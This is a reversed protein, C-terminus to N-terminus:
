NNAKLWFVAQELATVAKAKDNGQLYMDAMNRYDKYMNHLAPYPVWNIKAQYAEAALHYMEVPIYTKGTYKEVTFTIAEAAPREYTPNVLLAKGYEMAKPMNTKVLAAMTRYAILPAYKLGPEVKVISDIALLMSDPKGTFDLHLFDDDYRHLYETLKYDMQELHMNYVYMDRAAQVNWTNNIVKPLVTDIEYPEGLWALKGEANIIFSKPIGHEAAGSARFWSNEVYGNDDAAATFDLKTGLSDVFAQVRKLSTTTDELIDMGIFTVTDKYQKALLSLHPMAANCPRCWTAWFEVVYVRGKEFGNVPTGKLWRSVKLPPPVDGINFTIPQKEGEQQASAVSAICCLYLTYLLATKVPIKLPM